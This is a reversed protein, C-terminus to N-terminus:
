CSTSKYHNDDITSYLHGENVLFDVANRIQGINFKQGLTNSVQEVHMGQDTSMAQPSNYMEFVAQQCADLGNNNAAPAASNNANYQGGLNPMAAKPTQMQNMNSMQPAGDGMASKLSNKSAHVYIAELQHYTIENFDTITRLSFAVVSRNGQFTRLHGYVRIYSGVTWEASQSRSDSDDDLWFRVQVTGTGDDITYQLSTSSEQSSVIKGVLTLNNVDEGNVKFAEDVSANELAQHLQKVTLPMLSESKTERKGTQTPSVGTDGGAQSAM